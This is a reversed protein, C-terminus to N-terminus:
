REVPLSITITTGEGKRSKVNISGNHERIIGYCISLGLGTGRGLPKTSFFPDFIKEMVTEDIGRGSDRVVIVISEGATKIQIWLNGGEPMADLANIILNMFVQQIQDPNVKVLPIEGIEM